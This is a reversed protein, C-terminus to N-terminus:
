IAIWLELSIKLISAIYLSFILVRENTVNYSLWRGFTQIYPGNKLFLVYLNKFSPKNDTWPQM